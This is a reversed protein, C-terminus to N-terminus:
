IRASSGCGGYVGCVRVYQILQDAEFGDRPPRRLYHRYHGIGHGLVLLLNECLPPTRASSRSLPLAQVQFEDLSEEGM